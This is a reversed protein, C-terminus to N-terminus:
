TPVYATEDTIDIITWLVDPPQDPHQLIEISFQMSAYDDSIFGVGTSPTVSCRYIIAELQPGSAPDPVFRIRGEIVSSAGGNVLPTTLDNYEYEVLLTADDAINGGVIPRVLGSRSDVEFDVDEVSGAVQVNAIGRFETPYWRGQVVNLTLVEGTVQGQAQALASEEGMTSLAINFTSYEDATIELKVTRQTTVSKLKVSTSVMSSFKERKEDETSSQIQTCNGLEEYGTPDGNADFRDFLLRGRGLLLNDANPARSM